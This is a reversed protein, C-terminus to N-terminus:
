LREGALKEVLRRAPIRYVDGEAAALYCARFCAVAKEREGRNLLLQGNNYLLLPDRTRQYLIEGVEILEAVLLDRESGQPMNRLINYDAERLLTLLETNEQTKDPAAENLIHRKEADSAGKMRILLRNGRILGRVLESQELSDAAELRQEAEALRGEQMLALALENHLMAFDPTKAVTDRYLAVNSRWLQARELTSGAAVLLCLLLLASVPRELRTREGFGNLLAVAAISLFASPLYLYREAAVTWAVDLVGVAVAPVLFLLGALLLASHLRSRCALWLLLLAAIGPALYWSSVSTIAFNLPWPVLFKKLYFGFLSLSSFLAQLPDLSPATLLKALSNQPLSARYAFLAALLLAIVAYCVLLVREQRRASATAAGTEWPWLRLLILSGPIFALATEKALAGLCLLGVSAVSYGVRGTAVGRCLSLAALLVFFAALPDTRGALWSVAECNAPHAAFLLSAALPLWGAGGVLLRSALLFVLASNAAHILVNELHLLHPNQALLKSDLYFSLATVPRYYYGEGPRVVDTLTLRENGYFKLIGQDDISNFNGSVAPSYLAMVFLILFFLQRNVGPLQSAQSFRM